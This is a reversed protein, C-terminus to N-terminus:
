AAGSARQSHLLHLEPPIPATITGGANIQEVVTLANILDLVRYPKALWADGVDAGRVRDPYGTIYIVGIPGLETLRRAVAIGDGGAGLNADVIALAPGHHRTLRDAEEADAAIGVVHYGALTVGDRLAEAVVRDDDVILVSSSPM